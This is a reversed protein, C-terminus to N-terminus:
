KKPTERSLNQQPWGALYEIFEHNVGHWEEKDDNEVEMWELRQELTMEMLNKWDDIMHVEFDYGGILHNDIDENTGDVILSNSKQLSM